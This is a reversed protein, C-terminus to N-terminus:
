EQWQEIIVDLGQKSKQVSQMPTLGDPYEEQELVIWETGGFQVNSSLVANWDTVDEGIIARKGQATGASPLTAKYHTTWTRNPYREIYTVPNESAYTAWGVDLQLVLAKNTSSAIFDWLTNNEDYRAFEQAHNHYGMRIGFPQLKQELQNLDDVLQKVTQPKFARDDWPVIVVPVGLRSYFNISKDFNIANFQEFSVHAGSISLGLEALLERLGEPDDAYPGFDGAFEVGDFGMAALTRLSGDFDRKVDKHVSWLQVSVLPLTKNADTSQCAALCMAALILLFGVKKM